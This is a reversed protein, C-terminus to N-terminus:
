HRSWMWCRRATRLAFMGATRPKQQSFYRSWIWDAEACAGSVLALRTAFPADDHADDAALVGEAIAAQVGAEVGAALEDILPQIREQPLLGHLTLYGDRHFAEIQEQTLAAM